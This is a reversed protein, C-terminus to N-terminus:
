GGLLMSIVRKAVWGCLNIPHRFLRVWFLSKQPSVNYYLHLWWDPPSFLMELKRKVGVRAGFIKSLPVMSDGIGRLRRKSIGGIRLQLENSLPVIYHLCNLTNIVHSYRRQVDKWDIEDIFKEAYLVIDLVNILKLVAGPHLGALHRCLQHLMHEHGLTQMQLEGWHASQLKSAVDQYRLHGPVDRGLADHHVEVSIVFGHVSKTANPLQHSHRMFRSPQQDPMEFGLERLVGGAQQKQAAPVLIDIDRMPRLADQPYLLPALALGKLAVVPIGAAAFAALLEQMLTYRAKAASRHRLQLAKLTLGVKGPAAFDHEVFHKCLLPAVASLEADRIFADWDEIALLFNRWPEFDQPAMELRTLGQLVVQM